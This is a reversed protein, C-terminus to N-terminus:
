PKAVMVVTAVILVVTVGAAAMMVRVCQSGPRRGAVPDGVAAQLRREAPWLVLEGAVAAVGGVAGARRRDLRRLVVLRGQEHGILVVGFVPVLFLVRGAWNVGPRYYRRVAESGPGSRLLALAYGGAM